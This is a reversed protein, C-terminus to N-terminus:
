NSPTPVAGEDKDNFDTNFRDNIFVGGSTISFNKSNWIKLQCWMMGKPHSLLSYTCRNEFQTWRLDFCIDDQNLSWTETETHNFLKGEVFQCDFSCENSRTQKNTEIQLVLCTFIKIQLKCKVFDRPWVLLKPLRM